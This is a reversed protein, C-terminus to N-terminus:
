GSHTRYFVRKGGRWIAEGFDDSAGVPEGGWSVEFTLTPARRAMEDIVPLPPGWATELDVRILEPQEDQIFSGTFGLDWKTGWHEILWGRTEGDSLGPPPPLIDAFSLMGRRGSTSAWLSDAEGLRGCTGCSLPEPELDRTIWGPSAWRPEPADIPEGCYAAASDLSPRSHLVLKGSRRSEALRGMKTEAAALAERDLGIEVLFEAFDSVSV